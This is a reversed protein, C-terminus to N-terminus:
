GCQAIASLVTHLHEDHQMRWNHVSKILAVPICDRFVNRESLAQGAGVSRAPGNGGDQGPFAGGGGGGGGISNSSSSSGGNGGLGGGGGTGSSQGNSVPDSGGNGGRAADNSFGVNALIVNAATHGDLSGRVFLAGGAGMGGGGGNGDPGSGGDGGQAFGNALTLNEIAINGIDAFFIRHQGAGSITIQNAGGDITVSSDLLPLESSLVITSLGLDSSFNITTGPHTNAFLIASRLTGQSIDDGTSAVVYSNNSVL